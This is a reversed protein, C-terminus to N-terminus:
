LPAASRDYLVVKPEGAFRAANFRYRPLQQLFPQAGCGPVLCERKGPKPCEGFYCLRGRYVGSGAEFLHADVQHHAVGGYPTNRVSSLGRQIARKLTRLQGFETLWIALDLDGCEHLVEIRYRRYERFRPIEELLPQAVAGFAAVKEVEALAGIERAISEAAWRFLQQRRLLLTNQDAIEKESPPGSPQEFANGFGWESEEDDDDPELPDDPIYAPIELRDPWPDNRV